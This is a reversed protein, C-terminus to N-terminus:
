GSSNAKKADREARFKARAEERVKEADANAGRWPLENVAMEMAKQEELDFPEAKSLVGAWDVLPQEILKNPESM